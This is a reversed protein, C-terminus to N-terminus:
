AAFCKAWDPDLHRLVKEMVWVQGNAKEIQYYVWKAIQVTALVDFPLSATVLRQRNL